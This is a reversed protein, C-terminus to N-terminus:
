MMSCIRALRRRRHPLGKGAARGWKKLIRAVCSFRWTRQHGGVKGQDRIAKRLSPLHLVGGTSESFVMAASDNGLIAFLKPSIVSIIKAVASRALRLSYSSCKPDSEPRRCHNEM